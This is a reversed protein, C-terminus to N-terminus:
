IGRRDKTASKIVWDICLSFYRRLCYADATQIIFAATLTSGYIAQAQRDCYLMRVINVIKSPIGYHRLIRWLTEKYISVFTKEFDIFNAYVTCNWEKAQELIQRLTSILDSCSIGKRFGVKEKRIDNEPNTTFLKLIFKNLVKKTRSFLSIGWWNNCDSLNIEKALRRILGTKWDKLINESIRIECFFTSLIIFKLSKEAQLLDASIGDAGPAKGNKM